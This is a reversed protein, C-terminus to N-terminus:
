PIRFLSSVPRGATPRQFRPRSTAGARGLVPERRWFAERMAGPSPQRRHQMALRSLLHPRHAPQDLPRDPSPRHAFYHVGVSGSRSQRVTAGSSTSALNSIARWLPSVARPASQTSSRSSSPPAAAEATHNRRQDPRSAESVQCCRQGRSVCDGESASIAIRAVRAAVVGTGPGAPGVGVTRVIRAGYDLSLRVASRRIGPSREGDPRHRLTRSPLAVRSTPKRWSSGATSANRQKSRSESCRGSRRGPDTRAALQGSPRPSTPTLRM